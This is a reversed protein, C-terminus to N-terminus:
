LWVNKLIMYCWNLAWWQIKLLLLSFRITEVCIYIYISVHIEFYILICVKKGKLNSVKVMMEKIKMEVYKM